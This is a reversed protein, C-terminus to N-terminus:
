HCHDVHCDMSCCDEPKQCPGGAPSCASPDRCFGLTGLAADFPECTEGQACEASACCFKKCTGYCHLTPACFPGSANNCAEGEKAENPPPYCSFGPKGQKEGFDCAEGAGMCGANTLPNCTATGTFCAPTISGGSGGGGGGEGGAGGTGGQGGGAGGQGGTGGQGGGGGQGNSGGDECGFAGMVLSAILMWRLIRM